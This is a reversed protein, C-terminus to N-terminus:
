RKLWENEAEKEPENYETCSISIRADSLGGRPGQRKEHSGSSPPRKWTCVILKMRSVIIDLCIEETGNRGASWYTAARRCRWVDVVSGLTKQCRSRKRHERLLQTAAATM